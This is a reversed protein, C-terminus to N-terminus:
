IQKYTRISVKNEIILCASEAAHPHNKQRRTTTRLIQLAVAMACSYETQMPMCRALRSTRVGDSSAMENGAASRARKDRCLRLAEGRVFYGCASCLYYCAWADQRTTKCAFRQSLFSRAVSFLAIMRHLWAHRPAALMCTPMTRM